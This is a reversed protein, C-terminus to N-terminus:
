EEGITAGLKEDAERAFVKAPDWFDEQTPSTEKTVRPQLLEVCDMLHIYRSRVRAGHHAARECSSSYESPSPEPLARPRLANINARKVIHPTCRNKNM